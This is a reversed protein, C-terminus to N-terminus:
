KRDEWGGGLAKYLTVLDTGLSQDAQALQDQTSLVNRQADLVELFTALGNQYQSLILELSDQNQKLADALANRREQETAYAVL